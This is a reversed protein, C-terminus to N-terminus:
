SGDSIILFSQLSKSNGPQAAGAEETVPLYGDVSIYLCTCSEHLSSHKYLRGFVQFIQLFAPKKPKWFIWPFDFFLQFFM